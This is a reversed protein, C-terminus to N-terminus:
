SPRSARRVGLAFDHVGAATTLDFLARSFALNAVSDNHLEPFELADIAGLAPQQLEEKGSM